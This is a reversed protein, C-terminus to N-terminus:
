PRNCKPTSDASEHKTHRSINIPQDQGPSAPKQISLSSISALTLYLFVSSQDFYSASLGTIAHTFLSAGLAWIMFLSVATQDATQRLRQGVISFGTAMISIFLLMLPLGGLVGMWIYQNTIDAHNPSWEIGYAFWHRTYDTGALWWESLHERAADILKARHWSTSGGVLDIRAILYYAPAKMILDLGIYSLVALWRILRIHHRCHWMFLAAIAFFASLIPGSSASAFVMLFCAVIGLIATKRYQDWLGIMLPLCVAGVIGAPISHSFPGQARIRGNRIDSMEPVGGLVSFLNHGTLKESLMEISLPALLIATISCLRSVEGLSQCFVRLLFYIGCANYVHGLHNILVGIIDEHFLSCLLAWTGWIVILRDLRNMRNLLREGRVIVRIFGVAILIRIVHLHFPGLTVAEGLTMYCAGVILPLAAWQRPATLLAFGNLMLFVIAIINM